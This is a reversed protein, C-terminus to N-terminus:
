VACEGPAPLDVLITNAFEQDLSNGAMRACGVLKETSRGLCAFSSLGRLTLLIYDTIETARDPAHQAVYNRILESAPEALKTAMERAVPDDARMGETVMCGRRTEHRTYHVAAQVLLDTLAEAPAKGPILVKHIPMAEKSVYFQMAREFLEAKSGYAAYLSPPVISLAATLDAISVADYGREHFLEQAIRVGMERDFAPRRKRAPLATQKAPHQEM